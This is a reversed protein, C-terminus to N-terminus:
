KGYVPSLKRTKKLKMYKVIESPYIYLDCLIVIIFSFVFVLYATIASASIAFNGCFFGILKLSTDRLCLM